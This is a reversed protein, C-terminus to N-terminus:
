RLPFCGALRGIRPIKTPQQAETFPFLQWCSLSWYALVSISKM